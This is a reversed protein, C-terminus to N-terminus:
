RDELLQKLMRIEDDKAKIIREYLESEKDTGQVIMKTSANGGQQNFNQQLYSVDEGILTLIEVKLVEALQKLRLLSAKEPNKEIAAYAQQTLSLKKAVYEQSFHRGTRIARINDSIEKNNM